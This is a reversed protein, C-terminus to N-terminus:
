GALLSGIVMSPNPWISVGALYAIDCAQKNNLEIIWFFLDKGDTFITYVPPKNDFYATLESVVQQVVEQSRPWIMMDVSHSIIADEPLPCNRSISM